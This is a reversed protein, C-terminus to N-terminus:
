DVQFVHFFCKVLANIQGGTRWEGKESFRGWDQLAPNLLILYAIHWTSQSGGWATPTPVQGEGLM